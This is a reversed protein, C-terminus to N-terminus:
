GEPVIKSTDAVLPSSAVWWGPERASIEAGARMAAKGGAFLGFCTAGSGSMRALKCGAALQLAKLCVAIEPCLAIATEALDNRRKALLAAFEGLNKPAQAFRGPEGFNPPRAAFVKATSVAVCPNVLVLHCAPLKPASAIKEGIGGVYAARGHLCVPVDAGIALALAALDEESARCRWLADLARLVAAADASGGGIGSAVPLHKTLRIQAGSAIGASERLLRAAKLVINDGSEPLNSAFAGGAELGLTDSQAVGVTDHLGAFAILSDLLHYGDARKGTVHLYLNLKAPAARTIAAAGSDATM